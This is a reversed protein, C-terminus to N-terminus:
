KSSALQVAALDGGASDGIKLPAALGFFEQLLKRM